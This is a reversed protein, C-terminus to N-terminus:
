DASDIETLLVVNQPKDRFVKFLKQEGPTSTLFVEYAKQLAVRYESLRDEENLNGSADIEKIYQSFKQLIHLRNVNVVQPNYSLQFFNFYDEANVIQNFEALNGKM